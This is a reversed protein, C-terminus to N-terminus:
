GTTAKRVREMSASRSGTRAGPPCHECDYNCGLNLEYSALGYGFPSEPRVLVTEAISRESLDLDWAQRAAGALWVPIIEGSIGRTLEQYKAYPIKIGNRRGPQVVIYNGLFPSVILEHM